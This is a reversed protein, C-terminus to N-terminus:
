ADWTAVEGVVVEVRGPATTERRAITLRDAQSDDLYVGAHQMADLLAKWLNDLDRRRKDPPYAEVTIALRGALRPPRVGFQERVWANVKDRYKRGAASILVRSGAHRWYTNTSPPWPLTLHIEKTQKGQM